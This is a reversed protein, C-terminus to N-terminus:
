EATDKCSDKGEANKYNYKKQNETMGWIDQNHTFSFIAYILRIIYELFDYWLVWLMIFYSVDIVPFLYM